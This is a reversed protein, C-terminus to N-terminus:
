FGTMRGEGALVDEMRRVLQPNTTTHTFAISSNCFQYHTITHLWGCLGIWRQLEDKKALQKGGDQFM